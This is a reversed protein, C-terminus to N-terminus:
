KAEAKTAARKERRAIAKLLRSVSYSSKVAPSISAKPGPGGAYFGSVFVAVLEEKGATGVDALVRLFPFGQKQSPVLFRQGLVGLIPCPHGYGEKLAKRIVHDLEERNVRVKDSSTKPLEVHKRKKAAAAKVLKANEKDLITPKGVVKAKFTDAIVASKSIEASQRRLFQLAGIRKLGRAEMVAAIEAETPYPKKTSEM